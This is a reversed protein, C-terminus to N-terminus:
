KTKSNGKIPGGWITSVGATFGLYMSAGQTGFPGNHEVMDLNQEEGNLYTDMNAPNFSSQFQRKVFDYGSKSGDAGNGFPEGTMDTSHHEYFRLGTVEAVQQAWTKSLAFVCALLLLKKM